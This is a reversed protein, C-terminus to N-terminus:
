TVWKIGEAGFGAATASWATPVRRAAASPRRRTRFTACQVM